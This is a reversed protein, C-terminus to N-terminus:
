SSVSRTVIDHQSDNIGDIPNISILEKQTFFERLTILGVQQLDDLALVLSDLTLLLGDISKRFLHQLLLM